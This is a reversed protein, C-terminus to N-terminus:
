LNACSTEMIVISFHSFPYNNNLHIIMQGSFLLSFLTVRKFISNRESTVACGCVHDVVIRYDKAENGAIGNSQCAEQGSGISRGLDNM